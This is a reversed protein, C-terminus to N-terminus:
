QEKQTQFSYFFAYTDFLGGVFACVLGITIAGSVACGDGFAIPLQMLAHSAAQGIANFGPICAFLWISGLVATFLLIPASFSLVTTLVLSRLFSSLV